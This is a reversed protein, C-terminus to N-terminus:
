AKADAQAQVNTKLISRYVRQVLDNREGASLPVEEPRLRAQESKRLLAWKQAQLSHELKDYALGDRDAIPDFSGEIELQLGPREELGHLLTDLKTLNAAQLEARGPAFEQYSITEAQGGFVAGLAAFPSTVIRTIINVLVHTIVKGFHFQPDDLNGE